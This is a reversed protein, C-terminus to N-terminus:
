GVARSQTRAAHLAHLSESDIRLVAKNLARQYCARYDVSQRLERIEPESGCVERAASQLRAYLTRAAASDTLDLDSYNVVVSASTRGPSGPDGAQAGLSIGLAAIGVLLSRATASELISANVNM